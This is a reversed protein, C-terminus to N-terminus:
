FKIPHLRSGQKIKEAESFYRDLIYFFILFATFLAVNLLRWDTYALLITTATNLGGHLFVPVYIDGSAERLAGLLYGFGFAGVVHVPISWSLVLRSSLPNWYEVVHVVGFILSAIILGYGYRVRWSKFVLRGWKKGFVEEFRTQVYGRFLAEEIFGTFVMHWVVSLALAKTPLRSFDTIGLMASVGVAALAPLVFTSVIVASWKFTFRPNAPILGYTKFNRGSLVIAVLVLLMILAKSFWRSFEGWYPHAEFFWIILVSASVVFCVELLAISWKNVSSM